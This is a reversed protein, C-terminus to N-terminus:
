LQALKKVIKVIEEAGKEAHEFLKKEKYRLNVIEVSAQIHSAVAIAFERNIEQHEEIEKESEIERKRTIDKIRREIIVEPLYELLIIIEPKIIEATQHSVGPFFGYATKIAIHTDIFVYKEQMSAIKKYAQLQLERQQRLSLKKRLEDRDKIGFKERAIELILDGVNVIKAEPLIKKVYELTTTKGAGPVAAVIIKM